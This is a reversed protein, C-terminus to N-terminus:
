GRETQPPGPSVRLLGHKLMWMVQYFPSKKDTGCNRMIDNIPKPTETFRIIKNVSDIDILQEM